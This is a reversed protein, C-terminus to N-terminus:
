SSISVNAAISRFVELAIAKHGIFTPHVNDTLKYFDNTGDGTTAGVRGTGFMFANMDIFKRGASLTTTKAISNMTEWGSVVCGVVYVNPVDKALELCAALAAQVGAGNAPDNVTCYFILTDPKFSLVLPLRGAYTRSVGGADVGGATFGTAGIGALVPESNLLKILRASWAEVQLAGDTEGSGSGGVFSDGIVATITSRTKRPKWISHALPVRAESFGIFGNSRLTIKRVGTSPFTLTARYGLGNVSRTIIYDTVWKDNVSIAFSSTASGAHCYIEIVDSSTM